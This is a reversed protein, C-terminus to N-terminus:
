NSTFLILYKRASWDDRELEKENAKGMRLRALLVVPFTQVKKRTKFHRFRIKM